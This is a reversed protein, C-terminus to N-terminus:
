ATVKEDGQEVEVVPAVANVAEPSVADAISRLHAPSHHLYNKTATAVTCGIVGAIAWMSAGGQAAWTGWTHRLTHPTVDPMKAAKRAAKFEKTISGPRDLVYLSTKEDYARQLIPLLWNSIPAVGRRKKTEPEGPKRFDILRNKLDVKTWMLTEIANRRRATSLAIACFRYVRSLRNLEPPQAKKLLEQSEARDLFRDKSANHGPLAIQPVHRNEIKRNRVAFNAAAIFCVLERRITADNIPQGKAGKAKKRKARYATFDDSALTDMYKDAGIITEVYKLAKRHRKKDAVRDEIHNKDYYDIVEAVTMRAGKEEASQQELLFGALIKQAEQLNATRTSARHSRGNETWVIYYVGKALPKLKAGNNPRSM